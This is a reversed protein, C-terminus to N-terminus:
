GLSHAPEKLIETGVLWVLYCRIEFIEAKQSAISHQQICLEQCKVPM